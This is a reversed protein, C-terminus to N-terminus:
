NINKLAATVKRVIVTECRKTLIPSNGIMQRQPMHITHAGITGRRQATIRRQQGENQTKSLKLKGNVGRYNLIAGRSPINIVGGDNHIQAYPLDTSITVADPGDTKIFSRRLTATLILTKHPRPYNPKKTPLWPKFTAGQFGGMRFNDDIFHLAEVGIADILQPRISQITAAIQRLPLQFPDQM